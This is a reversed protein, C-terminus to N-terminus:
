RPRFIRTGKYWFQLSTACFTADSDHNDAGRGTATRAACRLEKTLIPCEQKETRSIHRVILKPECEEVLRTVKDKMAVALQDQLPEIRRWRNLFCLRIRKRAAHDHRRVKLFRKQTQAGIRALHDRERAPDAYGRADQDPLKLVPPNEPWM